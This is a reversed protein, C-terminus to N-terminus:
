LHTDPQTELTTNADMTTNTVNSSTTLVTKFPAAVPLSAPASTTPVSVTTSVTSTTSTITSPTTTRKTTRRTTRKTPRRTPRRTTWRKRTTTIPTSTSTMSTTTSLMTTTTTTTTVALQQKTEVFCRVAHAKMTEFQLEFYMAELQELQGDCNLSRLCTWVFTVCSRCHNEEVEAHCVVDTNLTKLDLKPYLMQLQLFDVRCDGHYMMCRTGLGVCDRCTAATVSTINSLNITVYFLVTVVIASLM